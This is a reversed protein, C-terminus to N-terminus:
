RRVVVVFGGLGPIISYHFLPIIPESNVASWYELIGDNWKEMKRRAGDNWYEMKGINWEGTSLDSPM